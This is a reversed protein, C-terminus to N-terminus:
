NLTVGAAQAEKRIQRLEDFDTAKDYRAQLANAVASSGTGDGSLAEDPEPAKSITKSRIKTKFETMLVVARMGSPDDKLAKVVRNRAGENTGLLYAVKESGEGINNLLLQMAGPQGYATDIADTATVLADGAKEASVKNESAFKALREATDDQMKQFADRRQQEAQVKQQHQQYQQAQMTRQDHLYQNVARTLKERDGDIGPDWLDPYKTMFERRQPKVPEQGGNQVKALEAKLKDVESKLDNAEEQAAQRKKREKVMKHLIAEKASPKQETSAPEDPEDLELEFDESEEETTEVEEESKQDDLELTEDSETEVVETADEDKEAMARLEELSM